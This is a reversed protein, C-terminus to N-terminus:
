LVCKMEKKKYGKQIIKEVTMVESKMVYIVAHELLRPKEKKAHGSPVVALFLLAMRFGSDM